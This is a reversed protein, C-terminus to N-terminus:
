RVVSAPVGAPILAPDYAIGTFSRTHATTRVVLGRGDVALSGRAKRTRRTARVATQYPEFYTGLLQQLDPPFEGDWSM